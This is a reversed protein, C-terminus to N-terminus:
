NTIEFSELLPSTDGRGMKKLLFADIKFDSEPESLMWNDTVDVSIKATDEIKSIKFPHIRNLLENVAISAIQMNITIVAPRNVNVDKIYKHGNKREAAVLREYENPNKRYVSEARVDDMSYVNRTLLSSLGPQIYHVSGEIKNIGGKGDSEIAIGMDLYPLLYYTSIKNLLDRGETSDMCGILIDCKILARIAKISDYLNVPFTDVKTNYGIKDATEKCLDVKKRKVNADNEFANLIRNLNKLEIEDPDITVLHGIGLRNLQEIVVSGTGSCGVIGIKLGRLVSYTGEGFLQATREGIKSIVAQSKFGWSKISDGAVSIKDIMLHSLDPFFVRGFIEGSPLMVASAHPMDGDIWGFVSTFFEKDSIDDIHSFQSYGGPHSHIKLLGLNKKMARELLPTVRETPWQILDPKRNCENHPILLLDHVLLYESGDDTFRGCLAIAIAENGDGPLLHNKLQAHHIGSIRLQYEM